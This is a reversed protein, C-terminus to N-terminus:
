GASRSGSGISYLDRNTGSRQTQSARRATRPSRLPGQRDPQRSRCPDPRETHRGALVPSYFPGLLALGGGQGNPFNPLRPRAMVTSSLTLQGCTSSVIDMEWVRSVFGFAEAGNACEIDEIGAGSMAQSWNPSSAACIQWHGTAWKAGEDAASPICSPHSFSGHQ